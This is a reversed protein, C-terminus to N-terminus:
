QQTLKIPLMSYEVHLKLIVYKGCDFAAQGYISLHLVCVRRAAAMMCASVNGRLFLFISITRQFPLSPLNLTPPKARQSTVHVFYYAGMLAFVYALTSIVPAYEAPGNLILFFVKRKSLSEINWMIEFWKHVIEHCKQFTLSQQLIHRSAYAAHRTDLIYISISLIVVM